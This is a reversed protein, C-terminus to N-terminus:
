VRSPKAESVTASISCATPNNLPNTYDSNHCKRIITVLIESGHNRKFFRCLPRNLEALLQKKISM